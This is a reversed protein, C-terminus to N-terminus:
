YIKEEYVNTDTFFYCRYPIFASKRTLSLSSWFILLFFYFVFLFHLLLKLAPCKRNVVIFANSFLITQFINFYNSIRGGIHNGFIFPFIVGILCIKLLAINKEKDEQSSFFHTACYLLIFIFIFIFRLYRGSISDFDLYGKYRTSSLITFQIIEGSVLLTIVTIFTMRFSFFHYLPYLLVMAFASFHGLGALAICFLFRVPQKDIIYRLSFFVIAIALGQRMEGLSILYNFALFALISTVPDKAYRLITCFILSYTLVGYIVFLLIRCDLYAAILYFLRNIPEFRSFEAYESGWDYVNWLAGWGDEIPVPLLWYVSYDFGVDFRFVSFFVIISMGTFLSVKRTMGFTNDAIFFCVCVLSLMLIWGFM